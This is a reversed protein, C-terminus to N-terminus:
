SFKRNGGFIRDIDGIIGTERLKEIGAAEVQRIRERTLNMIRGVEELTLGGQEAVDLSCSHVMEWVELHPFNIKISQTENKVDLYLHYKCSVFPCPRPGDVCEARSAPREYWMDDVLRKGEEIEARTLRRGAITKSRTREKRRAKGARAQMAMDRRLPEM